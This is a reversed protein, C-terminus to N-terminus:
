VCLLFNYSTNIMKCMSCDTVYAVTVNRAISNEYLLAAPLQKYMACTSRLVLKCQASLTVGVRTCSAVCLVKGLTNVFRNCVNFLLM